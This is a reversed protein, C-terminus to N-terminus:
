TYEIVWLEGRAGDGGNATNSGGDGAGGGGGGPIGGAGGAHANLTSGGGGGGGSGGVLLGGSSPYTSGAGGVANVGGAGGAVIVITTDASVISSGNGGTGGIDAGGGGGSGPAMFRNVGSTTGGVNDAATGPLFNGGAGGPVSLQTAAFLSYIGQALGGAGGNFGCKGGSGTNPVSINGFTTQGGDAGDTGLGGDGGAGGAGIVVTEMAGFFSEPAEYYFCAGGAGGGGGQGTINASGGGGGGNWGFVTVYKTNADKTWTGSATFKTVITGGGGGGGAQYTPAVGPGNSTLVQGAVGASTTVLRTGDFYVVGDTTAMSTANTGGNAIPIPNTASITLTSTGPNGVVSLIGSGVININGATPPVAGGSNGTLTTIPGAGGSGLIVASIQSM